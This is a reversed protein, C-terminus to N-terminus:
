RQGKPQYEFVRGDKLIFTGPAPTGRGELAEIFIPNEKSYGPDGESPTYVEPQEGGEGRQGGRDGGIGLRPRSEGGGMEQALGEEIKRFATGYTDEESVGYKEAENPYRRVFQDIPNRLGETPLMDRVMDPISALRELFAKDERTQVGESLMAVAAPYDGTEELHRQAKAVVAPDIDKVNLKGIEFITGAAGSGTGPAVSLRGEEDAQVRESPVRSALRAQMDQDHERKDEKADMWQQQVRSMAEAIIQPDEKAIGTALDTMGLHPTGKADTYSHIPTVASTGDEFQLMIAPKGDPTKTENWGAVPKFRDSYISVFPQMEGTTSFQFLAQTVEKQTQRALELQARDERDWEFQTGAREADEERHEMDQKTSQIGLQGQEMDLEHREGQREFQEDEMQRRRRDQPGKAGIGYLGKAVAISM